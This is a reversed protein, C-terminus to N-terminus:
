KSTADGKPLTALVDDFSLHYVPESAENCTNLFGWHVESASGWFYYGSKEVRRIKRWPVAKQRSLRDIITRLTGVIASYGFRLLGDLAGDLDKQEEESLGSPQSTMEKALKHGCAHCLGDGVARASFILSKGCQKCSADTVQVRAISYPTSLDPVVRVVHRGGDLVAEVKMAPAVVQAAAE